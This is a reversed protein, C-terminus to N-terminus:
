NYEPLVCFDRETLYLRNRLSSLDCEVFADNCEVCATSVTTLTNEAVVLPFPKTPAGRSANCRVKVNTMQIAIVSVILARIQNRVPTVEMTKFKHDLITSLLFVFTM